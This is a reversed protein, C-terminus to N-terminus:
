ESFKEPLPSKQKITYGNVYSTGDPNHTWSWEIDENPAAWVGQISGTNLPATQYPAPRWTQGVMNKEGPFPM